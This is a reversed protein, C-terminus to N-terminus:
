LLYRIDKHPKGTYYICFRDNDYQALKKYIENRSKSHEVLIGGIIQSNAPDVQYDVLLLCEKPYERELEEITKFEAKM